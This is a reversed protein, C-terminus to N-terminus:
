EAWEQWETRSECHECDGSCEAPRSKFNACDVRLGTYRKLLSCYVGAGAYGMDVIGNSYQCMVCLIDRVTLIM